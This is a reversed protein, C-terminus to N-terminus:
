NKVNIKSLENDIYIILFEDKMNPYLRQYKDIINITEHTYFKKNKVEAIKFNELASNINVKSNLGYLQSLGLAYYYDSLALDSVETHLIKSDLCWDLLGMKQKPDSFNNENVMMSKNLTLLDQKYRNFVSCAAFYAEEQKNHIQEKLMNYHKNYNFKELDSIYYNPSIQISYSAPKEKIYKNYVTKATVGIPAALVLFAIVFFDAKIKKM